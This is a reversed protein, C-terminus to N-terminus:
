FRIQEFVFTRKKRFYDKSSIKPKGDVIQVAKDITTVIVNDVSLASKIEFTIEKGVEITQLDYYEPIVVTKRDRGVLVSVEGSSKPAIMYDSPVFYIPKDSINKLKVTYVFDDPLEFAFTLNFIAKGRVKGVEDITKFQGFCVSWFLSVGILIWTRM